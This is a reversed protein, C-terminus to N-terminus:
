VQASNSPLVPVPIGSSSKTANTSPEQKASVPQATQPKTPKMRPERPEARANQYQQYESILDIMNSEAESFELEDMGEATYWHM